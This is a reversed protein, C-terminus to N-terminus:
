QAEQCTSCSVVGTVRVTTTGHNTTGGLLHDETLTISFSLDEPEETSDCSLTVITQFALKVGSGKFKTDLALNDQISGAGDITWLATSTAFDDTFTINVEVAARCTGSPVCDLSGDSAPLWRCFADSHDVDVDITAFGYDLVIGGWSINPPIAQLSDTSYCLGCVTGAQRAAPSTALFFSIFVVALSQSIKMPHLLLRNTQTLSVTVLIAHPLRAKRLRFRSIWAASYHKTTTRALWERLIRPRQPSPRGLNPGRTGTIERPEYPHHPGTM